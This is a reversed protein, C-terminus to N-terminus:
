LAGEVATSQGQSKELRQYANLLQEALPRAEPPWDGCLWSSSLGLENLLEEWQQSQQDSPEQELDGLSGAMPLVQKSALLYWEILCSLLHSVEDPGLRREEGTRWSRVSGQPHLLKWIALKPLARLGEAGSLPGSVYLLDGIAFGLSGIIRRPGQSCTIEISPFRSEASKEEGFHSTLVVEAGHNAIWEAGLGHANKLEECQHSLWEGLRGRLSLVEAGNGSEQASAQLSGAASLSQEVARHVEWGAYESPETRYDQPRKWKLQQRLFVQIPRVLAEELEWVSITDFRATFPEAPVIEQGDEKSGHSWNRRHRTMLQDVSLDFARACYSVLQAVTPSMGELGEQAQPASAFIGLRERAGLVAELLCLRDYDGKSPFAERGSLRNFPEPNWPTPFCAEDMGLLFVAQAPIGRCSQLSGIWIGEDCAPVEQIILSEKLWAVCSLMPLSWSRLPQNACIGDLVRLLSDEPAVRAVDLQTLLLRLQEAVDIVTCCLQNSLHAHFQELALLVSLFDQLLPWEAAQLHTQSPDLFLRECAKFLRESWTGVAPNKDAHHMTDLHRQLWDLRHSGDWGWWVQLRNLFTQLHRYDDASWGMLRSAFPHMVVRGVELLSWRAGLLGFIEQVWSSLATLEGGDVWRLPISLGKAALAGRILPRYREAAPSVILLDSWRAGPHEALFAQVQEILVEVEHDRSQCLHLHLSGDGSCSLAEAPVRLTLLDLQLCNLLNAAKAEEFTDPPLECPYAGKTRVAFCSKLDDASWEDAMLLQCRRSLRGWDALLPQDELICGELEDQTQQKLRQANWLKRLGALERGSRLDECWLPSASLQYAQVRCQASLRRLWRLLPKPISSHGILHVTTRSQFPIPLRLRQVLAQCDPREAMIQKWLDIQWDQGSELGDWERLLDEGFVGYQAFLYALTRAMPHFVGEETQLPDGVDVRFARELSKSHRLCHELHVRLEIPLPTRKGDLHLQDPLEDLMVFEIGMVCGLQQCLREEIWLRLAPSPIVLIHRHMWTGTARLEDALALILEEMRNSVVLPIHQEFCHM